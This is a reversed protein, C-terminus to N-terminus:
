SLQNERRDTQHDDKLREWLKYIDL